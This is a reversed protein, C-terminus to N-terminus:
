NIVNEAMGGSKGTSLEYIGLKKAEQKLATLELNWDYSVKHTPRWSDKECKDWLKVREKPLIERLLDDYEEKHWKKWAHCGKCVCVVLRTDAYTASNARTVLHDAQFVVGSMDLENGCRYMRLICGQDRKMVIARLWDQIDDKIQAVTSIGKVRIRTRKLPKRPKWKFGTRKM